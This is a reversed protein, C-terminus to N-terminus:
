RRPLDRCRNQPPAQLLADLATVLRGIGHRNLPFRAPVCVLGYTSSGRRLAEALLPRFDGLDHTVIARQEDPLSAFHVRDARGRLDTREGVAVVDHGRERLQRSIEPSLHEDLLLKM